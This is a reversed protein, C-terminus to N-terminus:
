IEGLRSLKISSISSTPAATIDSIVAIEGPLQDHGFVPEMWPVAFVTSRLVSGDDAGSGRRDDSRHLHLHRRRDLTPSSQHTRQQRVTVNRFRYDNCRERLMIGTLRPPSLRVDGIPRRADPLPNRQAASRRAVIRRRCQRATPLTNTSSTVYRASRSVSSTPPM